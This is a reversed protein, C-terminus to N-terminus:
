NKRLAPILIGDILAVIFGTGVPKREISARYALMSPIVQALTEVDANPDAEGRDIARRMLVRNVEIWRGVSAANAAEAFGPHSALMSRVGAMVTLRRQEDAISNPKFLALMDGRFTGTDPLPGLGVELEAMRAVADLVLEEKSAWRRYVTAKGAKARVAVMDMTMGAYDVEALVELAADLIATDRSPDRKRGLRVPQEEDTAM